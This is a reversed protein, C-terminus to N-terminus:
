ASALGGGRLRAPEAPPVERKPPWWFPIGWPVALAVFASGHLASLYTLIHVDPTMWPIQLSGISPLMEQFMSPLAAGLLSVVYALLHLRSWRVLLLGSGAFAVILGLLQRLSSGVAEPGHEMWLLFLLIISFGAPVSVLTWLWSRGNWANLPGYLFAASAISWAASFVCNGALASDFSICMAAAVATTWGAAVALVGLVFSVLIARVLVSGHGRLFFPERVSVTM